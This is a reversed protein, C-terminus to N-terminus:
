LFLSFDFCSTPYSHGTCSFSTQVKELLCLGHRSSCSQLGQCRWWPYGRPSARVVGQRCKLTDVANNQLRRVQRFQQALIRWLQYQIKNATNATNSHQVHLWIFILHENNMSHIFSYIHLLFISMKSLLLNVIWASTLTREDTDKWIRITSPNRTKGLTTSQVIINLILLLIRMKHM